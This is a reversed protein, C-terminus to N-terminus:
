GFSRGALRAFKAALNVYHLPLARTLPRVVDEPEISRVYEGPFHSVESLGSDPLRYELDPDNWAISFYGVSNAPRHHTGGAFM